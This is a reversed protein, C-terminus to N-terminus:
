LDLPRSRGRRSNSPQTVFIMDVEIPMKTHMSVLNTGKPIQPKSRTGLITHALSTTFLIEIVIIMSHPMAVFDLPIFRVLEMRFNFTGVYSVGVNNHHLLNPVLVVFIPVINTMTQARTDM